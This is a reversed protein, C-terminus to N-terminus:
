NLFLLCGPQRLIKLKNFQFVISSIWKIMLFEFLLNDWSFLNNLNIQFFFFINHNCIKFINKKKKCHPTIVSFLWSQCWLFVNWKLIYISVYITQKLQLLINWLIVAKVTNKIWYVCHAFSIISKEGLIKETILEIFCFFIWFIIDISFLPIYIFHLLYQM